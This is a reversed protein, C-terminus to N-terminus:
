GQAATRPPTRTGTSSRDADAAAPTGPARDRDFSTRISVDIGADVRDLIESAVEAQHPPLEAVAARMPEPDADRDREWQRLELLFSAYSHDAPDRWEISRAAALFQRDAEGTSGYLHLWSGLFIHAGFAAPRRMESAHARLERVARLGPRRSARPGGLAMQYQAQVRRTLSEDHMRRSTTSEVLHSALASGQHAVGLHILADCATLLAAERRAVSQTM